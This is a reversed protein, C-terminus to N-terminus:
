VSCITPLTLHTYSVTANGQAKVFIEKNIDAPIKSHNLIQDKHINEIPEYIYTEGNLYRTIVVSIEKKLNVKKELIYDATFCWNKKVDDLSNM